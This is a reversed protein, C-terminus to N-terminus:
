KEWNKYAIFAPKSQIKKDREIVREALWQFWEFAFERGWSARVESIYTELKGWSLMIPGSYADELMTIDIERRYVLIGLREWTGLLM